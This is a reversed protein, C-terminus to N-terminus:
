HLFNFPFYQFEYHGRGMDEKLIKIGWPYYRKGYMRPYKIEKKMRCSVDSLYEAPIKESLSDLFSFHDVSVIRGDGDLMFVVFLPLRFEKGLAGINEVLFDGLEKHSKWIYPNSLSHYTRWM